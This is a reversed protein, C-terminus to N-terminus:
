TLFYIGGIASVVLARAIWRRYSPSSPKPPEVPPEEIKMTTAIAAGMYKEIEPKASDSAHRHMRLAMLSFNAGIQKLDEESRGQFANPVATLVALRKAAKIMNQDKEPNPRPQSSKGPRPVLFLNGHSSDLNFDVGTKPDTFKDWIKHSITIPM